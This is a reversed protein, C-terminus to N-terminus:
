NIVLYKERGDKSLREVHVLESDKLEIIARKITSLSVDQMLWDRQIQATTMPASDVLAYIKRACQSLENIGLKLEQHEIERHLTLLNTKMDRETQFKGMNPRNTLSRHRVM